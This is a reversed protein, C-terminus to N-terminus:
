YNDIENSWETETINNILIQVQGKKDNNNITEFSCHLCKIDKFEKKFNPDEKLSFNYKRNSSIITVNKNIRCLALTALKMGEGFQGILNRNNQKDKQGGFLFDAFCIECNNSISLIKNNKDYEIRGIIKIENKKDNKYTFQFNLQKEKKNINYKDGSKEIQLNEKSKCETIISDYQNQVFERIGEKIGWDKYYTESIWMNNEGIIKLENIKKYLKEIKVEGDDSTFKLSNITTILIDYNLKEDMYCQISNLKNKIESTKLNIEKDLEDM